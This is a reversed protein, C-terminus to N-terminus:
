NIIWFLALITISNVKEVIVGEIVLEGVCGNRRFDVVMERTKEVNLDLYNDKCRRTVETVQQEFHSDSNSLDALVSDDSYKYLSCTSSSSRFDDTYIYHFVCTVSSHGPPVPPHQKSMLCFIKTDLSKLDTSIVLFDILWVILKPRVNLSFLKEALLHRQIKNFTSSYDIFLIRVFSGAKDLHTYTFFHYFPM